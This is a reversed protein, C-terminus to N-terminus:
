STCLKIKCSLYAMGRCHRGEFLEGAGDFNAVVVGFEFFVLADVTIAAHLAEDGDRVPLDREAYVEAGLAPYRRSQGHEHKNIPLILTIAVLAASTQWTAPAILRIQLKPHPLLLFLQRIPLENPPIPIKSLQPSTHKRGM